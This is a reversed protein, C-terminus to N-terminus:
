RLDSPPRVEGSCSRRSCALRPPAIGESPHMESGCEPCHATADRLWQAVQEVRIPDYKAEPTM